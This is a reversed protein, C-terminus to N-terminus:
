EELFLYMMTAAEARSATNQPKFTNDPYGSIIGTNRMAYVAEKAYESVSSHDSFQDATGTMEVGYKAKYAQTLMVAMEERTIKDEPRFEGNATGANIGNMGARAVHNYYWKGEEVDKYNSNVTDEFGLHNVLITAFEARTITGNPDFAMESKGSVIGKAALSTVYDKAWMDIDEFSPKYVMLGYESFHPATFYARDGKIEFPIKTWANNEYLGVMITDAAHNGIPLSLVVQGEVKKNDVRVDLDHVKEVIVTGNTTQISYTKDSVAKSVVIEEKSTDILSKPLTMTLGNADVTVGFEEKKLSQINELGLVLDMDQSAEVKISVQKEVSAAVKSLGNDKLTTELSTMAENAKTMAAELSTNDINVAPKEKGEIAQPVEDSIITVTGAKQVLKEAMEEVKAETSQSTEEVSSVANEIIDEVMEEAEEYTVDQDEIVDTAVEVLDEVVESADNDDMADLDEKMEKALDGVDNAPDESKAIDEKVEEVKEKNEEAKQDSDGAQPTEDPVDTEDKPKSPTSGSSGGSGPNSGSSGGSSGGTSTSKPKITVTHTTTLGEYKATVVVSGESKAVLKDGSISARSNSVSYKVGNSAKLIVKTGDTKTGEVQLTISNPVRVSTSTNVFKISNVAAEEVNFPVQTTKGGFKMEVTYTGQGYVLKFTHTYVGKSDTIVQTTTKVDGDKKLHLVVPRNALPNGYTDKLIGTVTADEGDKYGDGPDVTSGHGEDTVEFSHTVDNGSLTVLVKYTGSSMSEDLDFAFTTAGSGMTENMTKITKNDGDFFKLVVSKYATDAGSVTVKVQEDLDYKAKDTTVEFAQVDSVNITMTDTQGEYSVTITAQGAKKATLTQGSVTVADNNSSVSPTVTKKSSDSYVAETDLTLTDGVTMVSVKNKITLNTVTAEEAIVDFSKSYTEGDYFLKFTYVGLDYGDTGIPVSYSGNSESSLQGSTVIKSEKLIKYTATVNGAAQGDKALYGNAVVDDGLAVEDEAIELTTRALNGITFTKSGVLDGLKIFKIEASGTGYDSIVFDMEFSGGKTTEIEGSTKQSGNVLLKYMLSVNEVSGDGTLTGSLNVKDYLDYEDKDLSIVVNYDSAAFAPLVLSSFMAFILILSIFRKM